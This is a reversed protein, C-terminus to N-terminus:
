KDVILLKRSNSSTSEEIDSELAIPNKCDTEKILVALMRAMEEKNSLPGHVHYHGSRDKTIVVHEVVDKWMPMKYREKCFPCNM